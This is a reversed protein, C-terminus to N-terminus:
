RKLMKEYKIEIKVFAAKMQKTQHMKALYSRKKFIIIRLTRFFVLRGTLNQNM